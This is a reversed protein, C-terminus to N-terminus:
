RVPRTMRVVPIVQILQAPTEKVGARAPTLRVVTKPVAPMEPRIMPVPPIAPIKQAAIVPVNEWVKIPQVPIVKAPAALIPQVSIM